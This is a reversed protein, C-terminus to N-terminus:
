TPTRVCKFKIQSFITTLVNLLLNSSERIQVQGYLRRSVQRSLVGMCLRHHSVRMGLSIM